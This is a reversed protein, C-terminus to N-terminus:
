ELIEKLKQKYTRSVPIEIEGKLVVSNSLVKEICDIRVIFSRHVKFFIPSSLKESLEKFAGRYVIPQSNGKIFVSNYHGETTAYVVDEINILQGANTKITTLCNRPKELESIKTELHQKQESIEKEKEIKLELEVLLKKSENYTSYIKSSIAISLVTFELGFGAMIPNVVILSSNIVGYEDLISVLSFFGVASYATLYLRSYLKSNATARIALSISILIISLFLGYVVSLMTMLYKDFLVPILQSLVFLIVFILQALVLLKDHLKFHKKSQFYSRTFQIFVFFTIVIILLRLWSNITISNPYFIQFSYGLHTFLYMWLCTLYFSYWAFLKRKLIISFMLAVLIAIFMTGFYVGNAINGISKEEVFVKKSIIQAPISISSNHKYLKIFYKTNAKLEFVFDKDPYPRNNFPRKDGTQYLLRPNGNEVEYFDIFDLHPNAIELLREEKFKQTKFGIWYANESFGYRSKAEVQFQSNNKMLESLEISDACEFVDAFELLDLKPGEDNVVSFEFGLNSISNIGAFAFQITCLIVLLFIAKLSTM